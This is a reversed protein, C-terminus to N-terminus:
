AVRLINLNTFHSLIMGHSKAIALGQSATGIGSLVIQGDQSIRWRYKTVSLLFM